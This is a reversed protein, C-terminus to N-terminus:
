SISEIHKQYKEHVRIRAMEHNIIEQFEGSGVGDKGNEAMSREARERALNAEEIDIESGHESTDALVVVEGSPKVELFGGSTAFWEMYEGECEVTIEGPVLITVIPTHRALVTIEGAETRVTLRTAESEHAVKEPTVIKLPFKKAMKHSIQPRKKKTPPLSRM